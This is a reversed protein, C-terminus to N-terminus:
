GPFDGGFTAQSEIQNINFQSETLQTEVVFAQIPALEAATTNGLDTTNTTVPNFSPPAASASSVNVSPMVASGGSPVKNLISTASAIAGVVTGVMTSIYSVLLFPAAPGGAQAASTAGAIAQGISVATSIALESIALVKSAALGAKGQNEVASAISGLASGVDLAAKIKIRKLKEEEDKIKKNHAQEAALDEKRFKDNLEKIAKTRAGAIDTSTDGALRAKEALAEYYIELDELEKERGLLTSSRIEQQLYFLEKELAKENTLQESRQGNIRERVDALETEADILAVQLDISSTNLALEARALQLRKEAIAEEKQAQEDLIRGLEENAALREAITLSIDDRIQRQIEAENQYELMLGRQRSELLAVENRLAVLAAAQDIAARTGANVDDIFNKFSDLAAAQQVADLGTVVQVTASAFDKAGETVGDWDLDLAAKIVTGLAKFQLVVGELRNVLNEKIVEWLDLVAQKPDEFAAKMVNGIPELADFLKYLLIEFATTATSLADMVKQNKSVIDRMFEFVAMAVGVLGLSKIIGGISVGLTKTSQEAAKFGGKMQDSTKKTADGLEEVTEISKEVGEDVQSTDVVVKFAVQKQAM